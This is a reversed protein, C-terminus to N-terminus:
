APKAVLEGFFIEQLPSVILIEPSLLWIIRKPEDSGVNTDEIYLFDSGFDVYLRCRTLAM